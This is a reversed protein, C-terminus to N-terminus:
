VVVFEIDVDGCVWCGGGCVFVEDVGVMLCNGGDFVGVVRVRSVVVDVFGRVVGSSGFEVGGVGVM